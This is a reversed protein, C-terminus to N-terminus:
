DRMTPSKFDDLSLRRMLSPCRILLPTGILICSRVLESFSCDLEAGAEQVFRDLDEDLRISRTVEKKSSV